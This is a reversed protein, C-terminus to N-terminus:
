SITSPVARVHFVENVLFIPGVLLHLLNKLFAPSRKEYVSHGIGQFIWGVLFAALGFRWDAMAHAIADLMASSLLMGFALKADLIFYYVMVIAIFIEAGTLPLGAIMGFHLLQLLSFIGFIILPIGVFHCTVNGRTRHYSAYDALLTDIHKMFINILIAPLIGAAKLAPWLGATM